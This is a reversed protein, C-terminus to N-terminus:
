LIRHANARARPDYAMPCKRDRGRSTRGFTPKDNKMGHILALMTQLKCLQHTLLHGKSDDDYDILEDYNANLEAEVDKL